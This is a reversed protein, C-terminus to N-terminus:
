DACLSGERFQEFVHPCVEWLEKAKLRHTDQQSVLLRLLEEGKHLGEFPFDHFVFFLFLLVVIFDVRLIAHDGHLDRSGDTHGRVDVFGLLYVDALISDFILAEVIINVVESSAGLAYMIEYYSSHVAVWVM